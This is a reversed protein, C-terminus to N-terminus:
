SRDEHARLIRLIELIAQNTINADEQNKFLTKIKQEHSSVQLSLSNQQSTLGKIDSKLEEIGDVAQNIKQLVVGDNKARSNMGVVFTLVGIICAVLSCVFLIVEM